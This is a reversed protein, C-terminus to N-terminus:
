PHSPCTGWFNSPMSNTAPYSCAYLTQEQTRLDPLNTRTYFTVNRDVVEHRLSRFPVREGLSVTEVKGTKNPTKLMMHVRPGILRNGLGMYYSNPFKISFSFTGDNLVNVVGRNQSNEFAMTRNVFPLASGSFSQRYDPPNAAWFEVHLNQWQEGGAKKLVTGHITINGQSVTTTVAKIENM